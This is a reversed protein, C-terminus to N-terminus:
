KTLGTKKVNGRIYYFKLGFFYFIISILKKYNM